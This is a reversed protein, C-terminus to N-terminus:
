SDKSGPSRKAKLAVLGALLIGVPPAMWAPLQHSGVYMEAAGLAAIAFYLAHDTDLKKM